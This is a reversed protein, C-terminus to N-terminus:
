KSSDVEIDWEASLGRHMLRSLVAVDPAYYQKLFAELEPSLTLKRAVESASEVSVDPPNIANKLNSYKTSISKKLKRYTRTIPGPKKKEEEEDPVLHLLPLPIFKSDVGIHQYVNKLVRLPDERVDSATVVMLDTPAYYGFYQSLQRGYKANALVEPNQKLFLALSTAATIKNDHRAEVYAVRVSVLPNEVVAVLKAQPYTRAILSAAQASQIYDSALEGHVLAPVKSAFVTEYWEIGKKFVDTKSFFQTEGAPVCVGPHQRIYSYLLPAAAGSGIGIFSVIKRVARM